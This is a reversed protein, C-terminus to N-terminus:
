GIQCHTYRDVHVCEQHRQFFVGLTEKKERTGILKREERREKEENRKESRGVQYLVNEATTESRDGRKKRSSGRVVRGALAASMGVHVCVHIYTYVCMYM